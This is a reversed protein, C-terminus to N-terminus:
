VIILHLNNLLKYLKIFLEKGKKEEHRILANFIFRIEAETM